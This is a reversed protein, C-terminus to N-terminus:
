YKSPSVFNSTLSHIIIWRQHAMLSRPIQIHEKVSEEFTFLQSISVFSAIVRGVDAQTFSQAIDCGLVNQHVTGKHMGIRVLWLFQSIQTQFHPRLLDNTSNQRLIVFHTVFAFFGMGLLTNNGFVLFSNQWHCINREFLMNTRKRSKFFSCHPFHQM